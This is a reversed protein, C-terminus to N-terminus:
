ILGRIDFVPGETGTSERLANLSGISYTRYILRDASGISSRKHVGRLNNFALMCGPDVPVGFAHAEIATALEALAGEAETDGDRAARTAYKPWAIEANGNVDQSVISRPGSWVDGGLGFSLPARVSANDRSLWTRAGESLVPLIPGIPVYFTLTDKPNLAGLLAIWSVRSERPVWADDSHWDFEDRTTNTNSASNASPALEMVLKGDNQSSYNFVSGLANGIALSLLQNIKPETPLGVVYICDYKGDRADKLTRALEPAASELATITAVKGLLDQRAIDGPFHGGTLTVLARLRQGLDTRESESVRYTVIRASCAKQSSEYRPTSQTGATM